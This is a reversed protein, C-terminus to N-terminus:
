IESPHHTERAPAMVPLKQVIWRDGQRDHFRSQCLDVPDVRLESAEGRAESKENATELRTSIRHAEEVYARTASACRTEQQRPRGQLRNREGDRCEIQVSRRTTDRGRELAFGTEMDNPTVSECERKGISRKVEHMAREKEMVERVFSDHL